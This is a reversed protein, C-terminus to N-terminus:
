HVRMRIMAVDDDCLDRGQRTAVRQRITGHLAAFACWELDSKLKEPLNEPLRINLAVVARLDGARAEEFSVEVTVTTAPLHRLFREESATPKDTGPRM